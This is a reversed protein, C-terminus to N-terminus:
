GKLVTNMDFTNIEHALCANILLDYTCSSIGTDIKHKTIRPFMENIKFNRYERIRYGTTYESAVGDFFGYEEINKEFKHSMSQNLKLKDRIISIIDSLKEGDAESKRLAYFRVFLSGTVEVDDLQYESSIHMKYPEKTSTTKIEIANSNIYFDHTEYKCGTWFSVAIPGLYDLLEDLFKLEGYMGQQKERSMIVSKDMAFFNKWKTLVVTVIELVKCEQSTEDIRKQIDDIIIEFIYDESYVNQSIEAYYKEADYEQLKVKSVSIGKCLPINDIGIDEIEFYLQRTRNEKSVAYILIDEEKTKYVQSIQKKSQSTGNLADLLGNYINHTLTM